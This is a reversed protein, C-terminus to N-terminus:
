FLKARCRCAQMMVSTTAHKSTIATMSKAQSLTSLARFSEEELFFNAGSVELGGCRRRFFCCFFEACANARRIARPRARVDIEAIRSAEVSRGGTAPGCGSLGAGSTTANTPGTDCSTSRLASRYTGGVESSSSIGRLRWGKGNAPPWIWCDGSVSCNICRTSAGIGLM